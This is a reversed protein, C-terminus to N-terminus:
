NNELLIEVETYVMNTGNNWVTKMGNEEYFGFDLSKLLNFSKFIEHVVGNIQVKQRSIIKTAEETGTTDCRLINFYGYNM